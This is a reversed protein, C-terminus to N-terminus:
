SRVGILRRYLPPYRGKPFPGKTEDFPLSKGDGYYPDYAWISGVDVIWFFHACGGPCFNALAFFSWGEKIFPTLDKIVIEPPVGTDGYYIERGMELGKEKLISVADKWETGKCGVDYLKDKYLNVVAPPNYNKDVTSSLIMAVTTPGCGAKCITCGNPLPNDKWNPDCQAFYRYGGKETSPPTEAKPTLTLSPQSALQDYWHKINKPFHPNNAFPDNPPGGSYRAMFDAFQDNTFHSFNKFLCNLSENITQDQTPACGLHGKALAGSSTPIGSGGNERKTRTSAGTEEVWLTLVFAPNWGNNISEEVILDYYQIQANQWSDLIRKRAQPIPQISPDRFPIFYNLRNTTSSSPTPQNISDPYNRKPYSLLIRLLERVLEVPDNIPAPGEPIGTTQPESKEGKNNVKLSVRKGSNPGCAPSFDFGVLELNNQPNLFSEEPIVCNFVATNNIWGGFFEDSPCFNQPWGGNVSVGCAVTKSRRDTEVYCKFLKKAEIVEQDTKIGKIQVCNQESYTIKASGLLIFFILLFFIFVQSLFFKKMKFIIFM